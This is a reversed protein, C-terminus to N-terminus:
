YHYYRKVVPLDICRFTRFINIIVKENKRKMSTKIWVEGM